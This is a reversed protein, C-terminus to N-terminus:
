WLFFGENGLTQIDMRPDLTYDHPPPPTQVGEAFLIKEWVGRKGWQLKHSRAM